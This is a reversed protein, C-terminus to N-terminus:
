RDITVRCTTVRQDDDQVVAFGHSFARVIALGRGGDLPDALDRDPPSYGRPHDVTTVEVAV